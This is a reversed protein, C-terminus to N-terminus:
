GPEEGFAARCILLMESNQLPLLHGHPLRCCNQMCFVQMNDEGKQSKRTWPLRPSKSEIHPISDERGAQLQLLGVANSIFFVSSFSAMQPVNEDEEKIREM